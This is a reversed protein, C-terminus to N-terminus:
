GSEGCRELGGGRVFGAPVRQAEGGVLEVQSARLERDPLPPGGFRVQNPRELAEPPKLVGFTERLGVFKQGPEGKGPMFDLLRAEVLGPGPRAVFVEVVAGSQPANFAEGERLRGESRRLRSRPAEWPRVPGM